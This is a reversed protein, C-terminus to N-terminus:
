RLRALEDIRRIGENIEQASVRDPEHVIRNRLDHLINLQEWYSHEVLGLRLLIRIADRMSYTNPKRVRAENLIASELTNWKQLFTGIGGAGAYSDTDTRIKKCIQEFEDGQPYLVSEPIPQFGGGWFEKRRFRFKAILRNNFDLEEKTEYEAMIEDTGALYGEQFYPRLADPPCISLLRVNVIDHESNISIRNTVYPLGFAFVYGEDTDARLSAFSCAVLLSHTFDLLPTPWVEYHQLISWQVYKRRKVDKYAGRNRRRLHDCMQNAASALINFRIDLEQKSVAGGRYIGPYFTSAGAKNRYDHGQGRYFLLHDKNFYSLKAVQHVLERYDSVPYADAVAVPNKGIHQKIERTLTGKIRRM